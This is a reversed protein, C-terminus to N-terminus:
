CILFRMGRELFRRAPRLRSRSVGPEGCWGALLAVPFLVGFQPKCALCGIFVGAL